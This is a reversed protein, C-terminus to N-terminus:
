ILSCSADVTRSFYSVNSTSQNTELRLKDYSIGFTVAKNRDYIGKQSDELMSIIHQSVLLKLMLPRATDLALVRKHDYGILQLRNHVSQKTVGLQTATDTMSLGSAMLVIAEESAFKQPRAPPKKTLKATTKTLAKAVM